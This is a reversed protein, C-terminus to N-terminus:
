EEWCHGTPQNTPKVQVICCYIWCSIVCNLARRVQMTFACFWLDQKWNWNWRIHLNCCIYIIVVDVIAYLVPRLVKVVWEASFNQQLYYYCCVAKSKKKYLNKNKWECVLRGVLWCFQLCRINLLFRWHM